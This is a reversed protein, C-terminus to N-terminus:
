TGQQDADRRMREKAADVEHRVIAVNATMEGNVAEPTKFGCACAYLHRYPGVPVRRWDHWDPLAM